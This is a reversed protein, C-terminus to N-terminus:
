EVSPEDCVVRDCRRSPDKGDGALQVMELREELEIIALGKKLKTNQNIMIFLQNKAKFLANTFSHIKVFM